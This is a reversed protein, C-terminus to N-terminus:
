ASCGVGCGDVGVAAVVAFDVDPDVAVFVREQM